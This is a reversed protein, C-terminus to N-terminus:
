EFSKRFVGLAAFFLRSKSRARASDIFSGTRAVILERIEPDQREPVIRGSEPFFHLREVAAVIRRM